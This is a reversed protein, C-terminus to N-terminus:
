KFGLAALHADYISPIKYKPSMLQDYPQPGILSSFPNNYGENSVPGFLQQNSQVKSTSPQQNFTTPFGSQQGFEKSFAPPNAKYYDATKQESYEPIAGTFGTLIGAGAGLANQLQAIRTKEANAAALQAGSLETEYIAAMEDATLGQEMAQIKGLNFLENALAERNQTSQEGAIAQVKGIGGALMRPDGEQLASVAQMQQATGERFQRQYAETPVQLAEFFNQGQIRKQEASAQEAARQASRQLDKQKSAEVLSMGINVVGLGATVWPTAATAASAAGAGM